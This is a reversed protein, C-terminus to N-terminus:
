TEPVGMQQEYTQQEQQAAREQAIRARRQFFRFVLIRGVRFFALFPEVLAIFLVVPARFFPALRTVAVIGQAMAEKEERVAPGLEDDNRADLQDAIREFIAILQSKVDGEESKPRSTSTSTKRRSERRRQRASIDDARKEDGSELDLTSM